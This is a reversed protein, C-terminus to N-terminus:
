KWCDRGADTCRRFRVVSHATAVLRDYIEEIARLGGRPNGALGTALAHECFILM